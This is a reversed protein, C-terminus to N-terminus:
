LVVERTSAAESALSPTTTDEAPTIGHPEPEPPTVDTEVAMPAAVELARADEESLSRGTLARLAEPGVITPCENVLRAWRTEMWRWKPTASGFFDMVWDARAGPHEADGQLQFDLSENASKLLEMAEGVTEANRAADLEEEIKELTKVAWSKGDSGDEPVVVDRAEQVPYDIRAAKVHLRFDDLDELMQPDAQSLPLRNLDYRRM